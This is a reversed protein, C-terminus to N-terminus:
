FPNNDTHTDGHADDHILSLELEEEVKKTANKAGGVDFRQDLVEVEMEDPLKM